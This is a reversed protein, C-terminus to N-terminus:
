PQEGQRRFGRYRDVRTFHVSRVTFREGNDFVGVFPVKFVPVPYAVAVRVSSARELDGTVSLEGRGPDLWYNVLVERMAEEAARRGAPASDALVFSRGAARAAASTALTARQVDALIGVAYALPVLLMIAGVLFEILASGSERRM